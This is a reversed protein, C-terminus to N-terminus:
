ITFYSLFYCEGDKEGVLIAMLYRKQLLYKDFSKKSLALNSSEIFKGNVDKFYFSNSYNSSMYSLTPYTCSKKQTSSIGPVLVWYHDFISKKGLEPFNELHEILSKTKESCLDWLEFLPYLKPEYELFPNKEKGCYFDYGDFFNKDCGLKVEGSDSSHGPKHKKLLSYGIIKSLIFSAKTISIKNFGFYQSKSAKKKIEKLSLEIEGAMCELGFRLFHAYHNEVSRIDDKFLNEFRFFSRFDRHPSKELYNEKKYLVNLNVLQIGKNKRVVDRNEKTPLFRVNLLNSEPCNIIKNIKKYFEHKKIILKFNNVVEESFNKDRAYSFLDLVECATRSFTGSKVGVLQGDVLDHLGLHNLDIKESFRKIKLGISGFVQTIQEDSYKQIKRLIGTIRRKKVPSKVAMVKKYLQAQSRRISQFKKM